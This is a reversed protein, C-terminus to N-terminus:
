FYPADNSALEDPVDYLRDDCLLTIHVLTGPIRVNLVEYQESDADIKVYGNNSLIEMSGNNDRIFTKLIDLGLGRAIKKAPDATTKGPTFAWRMAEAPDISERVVDRIKVPITVGADAIALSISRDDPFHEGCSHVGVPSGSHEFANAYAEWLQGVILNTLPLSVNLWGRGLWESRLYTVIGDKDEVPDERYCIANDGTPLVPAGMSRAFGNQELTTRVSERMTSTRLSPKAGRASLVRIMTGISVIAHPRLYGCGSFTFHVIDGPRCSQVKEWLRAIAGFDRLRANIGPVPIIRLPVRQSQAM